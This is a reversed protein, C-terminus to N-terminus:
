SVDLTVIYSVVSDEDRAVQSGISCAIDSTELGQPRGKESLLSGSSGLENLRCM